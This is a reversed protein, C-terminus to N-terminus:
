LKDLLIIIHMTRFNSNWRLVDCYHVASLFLQFQSNGVTPFTIEVGIQILIHLTNRYRDAANGFVFFRPVMKFPFKLRAYTHREWFGFAWFSKRGKSPPAACWQKPSKWQGSSPFLGARYTHCALGGWSRRLEEAVFVGVLFYLEVFVFPSLCRLIRM